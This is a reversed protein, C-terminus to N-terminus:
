TATYTARRTLSVGHFTGPEQEVEATLWYRGAEPWEIEVVGDADTTAKIENVVDRFRDNGKIATVEVGEVPEGHLLFVFKAKEGAFLDNPHTEPYLELGEGTPKLVDFTPAGSTVMTELRSHNNSVTIGPKSAY